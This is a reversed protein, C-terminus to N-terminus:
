QLLIETGLGEDEEMEEEEEEQHDLDLDVEEIGGIGILDILYV